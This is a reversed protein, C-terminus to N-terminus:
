RTPEQHLSATTQVTALPGNMVMKLAETPWVLVEHKTKQLTVLGRLELAKIRERGAPESLNRLHPLLYWRMCRGGSEFVKEAISQDIWDLQRLKRM